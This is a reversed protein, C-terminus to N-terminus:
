PVEITKQVSGMKTHVGERVVAKIKYRGAPVKIDVKSTFGHTLLASYSPDTLNLDMSKELGDVFQEHEDFAVVVLNILNKHRSDEELFKMGQISVRTMLALQYRSEDAQFYNYSLQIPIENLNGPAHLAEIIDEKKRREFTLQEKAAYYGARYRVQLGPRNLAIKIKHYRGDLKPNPTAYTLVYYFSQSDLIKRLGGTLDNTNGIHMGGTEGSLQRLSDEQRLMDNSRLMPKQALVAFTEPDTGITVRDRAEYNTTFLGRVDVTNFIVNSRLSADVVDQLEYRVYNPLLGDSFLIVSKKADFHRLSRIHQKVSGLLLRYYHQNQEFQQSAASRAMQEAQEMVRPARPDLGACMMTEVAAVQLARPDPQDNRIEEAQLDTMEPCDRRTVQPVNVQKFLDQVSSLLTERDSTFPQNITGSASVIAVLDTPALSSSVFNKIAEKAYHLSTPDSNTYDDLFLSIMRSQSAGTPEVSDPVPPLADKVPSSPEAVPKYSEVAFTHITQLKGDEFLTLEEKKIDKVPVGQKDTVILNVIVVDVPVRFTFAETKPTEKKPSSVPRDSKEAPRIQSAILTGVLLMGLFSKLHLNGM